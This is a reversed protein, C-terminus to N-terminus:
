KKAALNYYAFVRGTTRNDISIVGEIKDRIKITLKPKGLLKGTGM